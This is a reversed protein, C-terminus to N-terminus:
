FSVKGKKIRNKNKKLYQMANMMDKPNEKRVIREILRWFNCWNMVIKSSVGMGHKSRLYARNIVYMFRSKKSPIRYELSVLHKVHVSEHLICYMGNTRAKKYYGYSFDLDEAYAYGSLNEDWKMNWAEILSKRVVFFYGMAWQTETEGKINDPYRGLMSLTVHGINRNKFSKTGLLYGIKSTSKRNNDDLGAIMAIRENQMIDYVNVFTNHYIDVDDDSFVVIEEKAVKMANNRAMTSSPRSQYIYKCETQNSYKNVIDKVQQRVEEDQSQDVVVIQTPIYTVTLYNRLTRNLTKPRNMTPILVSIPIKKM